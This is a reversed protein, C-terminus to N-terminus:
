ERPGYQEEMREVAKPMTQRLGQKLGPGVMAWAEGIDAETEPQHFKDAAEALMRAARARGSSRASQLDFLNIPM